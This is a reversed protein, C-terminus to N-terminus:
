GRNRPLRMMGEQASSAILRGDRSYVSGRGLGRGHGAWPSDFSYLMWDNVDVNDHIWLTHDLSAVVLGSGSADRRHQAVAASLVGMDSLWALIIRHISQSVDVPSVLRFWYDRISEDPHIGFFGDPTVPRLEMPGPTVVLRALPHTLLEPHQRAYDLTSLLEEPSPVEPLHHQHSLGDLGAQFSAALNLIVEGKQMAVVRRNSISGGDFDSAVRFDTEHDEDGPRLFYAHLSHVLRTEDVTKSIASLAQAITQGGYIRGVGGPKRGGHFWGDGQPQADLLHLLAQVRAAPDAPWGQAETEM